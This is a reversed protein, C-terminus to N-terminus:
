TKIIFCKLKTHNRAGSHMVLKYQMIMYKTKTITYQKWLADKCISLFM